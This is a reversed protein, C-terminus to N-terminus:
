QESGILEDLEGLLEGYQTWNKEEMANWLQNWITRAEELEPPDMRIEGPQMGTESIIGPMVGPMQLGPNEGFLETLALA